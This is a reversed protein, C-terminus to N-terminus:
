LSYTGHHYTGYFYISCLVWHLITFGAMEM